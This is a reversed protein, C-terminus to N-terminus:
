PERIGHQQRWPFQTDSTLALIIGVQPKRGKGQMTHAIHYRGATGVPINYEVGQLRHLILPKDGRLRDCDAINTVTWQVFIKM